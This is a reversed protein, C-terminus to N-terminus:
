LQKVRFRGKGLYFIVEYKEDHYDIRMTGSKQISGSPHIAIRNGLTGLQLNLTSPYTRSVLTGDFAGKQIVYTTNSVDFIIYIVRQHVIAHQQAYFYDKEFQEFFTSIVKKKQMGSVNFILVFSMVSVITLVLLTELLTFGKNHHQFM